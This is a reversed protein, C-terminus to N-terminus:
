VGIIHSTVKTCKNTEKLEGDSSLASFALRAIAPGFRLSIINLNGYELYELGCDGDEKNKLAGV